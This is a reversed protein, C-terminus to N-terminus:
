TTSLTRRKARGHSGTHFTDIKFVEEPYNRWVNLDVCNDYYLTGFFIFGGQYGVYWRVVVWCWKGTESFPDLLWKRGWPLSGSSCEGFVGSLQGFMFLNDQPVLLVIYIRWSPFSPTLYPNLLGFSQNIHSTLEEQIFSSYAFDFLAKM